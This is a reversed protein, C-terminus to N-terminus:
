VTSSRKDKRKVIATEIEDNENAPDGSDDENEKKTRKAEEINEYTPPPIPQIAILPLFAAFLFVVKSGKKAWLILTYLIYGIGVFAILGLIAYVAKDM